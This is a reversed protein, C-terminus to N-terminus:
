RLSEDDDDDDDDDDDNDGKKICNFVAYCQFPSQNISLSIQRLVKMCVGKTFALRDEAM